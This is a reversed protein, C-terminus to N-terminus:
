FVGFKLHEYSRWFAFIKSAPKKTRKTSIEEKWRALFDPPLIQRCNVKLSRKNDIDKLVIISAFYMHVKNITTLWRRNYAVCM